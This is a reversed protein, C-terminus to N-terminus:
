VFAEESDNLEPRLKEDHLLERLGELASLLRRLDHETHLASFTLRLRATGEPVTPPRIAPVHLGLAALFYSARLATEVDGLILGQIPASSDTLRYGLRQAHRRFAQVLERLRARRWSDERVRDLAAVGAVALAPPLATTFMYSRVFQLLFEILGAEGAVFAGSTGFAKGLTGILLPVDDQNAFGSGSAIVGRGPCPVVRRRCIIM